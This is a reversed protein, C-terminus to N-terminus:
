FLKALEGLDVSSVREIYNELTEQSFILKGGVNKGYAAIIELIEHEMSTMAFSLGHKEILFKNYLDMTFFNDNAFDKFSATKVYEMDLFDNYYIWDAYLHLFMGKNFDNQLTNTLLFKQLNVKEKNRKVLDNTECRKGCHTAEKDEALDPAVNGDYFDRENQIANPHKEIYRKAIALHMNISAM